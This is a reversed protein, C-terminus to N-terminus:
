RLGSIVRVLEVAGSVLVGGIGGSISGAKASMKSIDAIQQKNEEELGDVRHGLGNIQASVRSELQDMNKTVRSELQAMGRTQSEELRRLEAKIDDIRRYTGDQLTQVIGTLQGISHMLAAFQANHTTETM